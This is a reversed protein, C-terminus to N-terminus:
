SLLQLTAYLYLKAAYVVQELHVFENTTHAQEIAGPGCVVTPFGMYPADSGAVFAQVGPDHGFLAVHGARLAKVVPEDVPIDNPAILWTPETIEYRFDPDSAAARAIREHLEAYVQEVAEGPLTRRDVELECYDPVMNVQVGGRIVGPNFRGHGCLPHPTRALLEENYGEFAQIVRAMRVIANVGKEPVSSHAAVGR